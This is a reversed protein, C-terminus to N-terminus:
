MYCEICMLRFIHYGAVHVTHECKVLVLIPGRRCQASITSRGPCFLNPNPHWCCCTRSFRRYSTPGVFWLSTTHVTSLSVNVATATPKGSMCGRLVVTYMDRLTTFRFKEWWNICLFWVQMTQAGPPESYGATDVTGADPSGGRADQAGVAPTMQMNCCTNM